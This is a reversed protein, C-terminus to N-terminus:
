RAGRWPDRVALAQEVAAMLKARDLPKTLTAMAGAEKARYLQEPAKGSIAIIKADPDLTRIHEILLVGHLGPMVLDTIVLDPDTKEYQAIGAEGDNAFIVNHGMDDALDANLHVRTGPEDDVVLITGM